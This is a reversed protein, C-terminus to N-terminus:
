NSVLTKAASSFTFVRLSLYVASLGRSTHLMIIISRKSIPKMIKTHMCIYLYTCKLKGYHVNERTETCRKGTDSKSRKANEMGTVIMQFVFPVSQFKDGMSRHIGVDTHIHFYHFRNDHSEHTVIVM